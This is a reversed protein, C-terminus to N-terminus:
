RSPAGRRPLLLSAKRSSPPAPDGQHSTGPVGWAGSFPCTDMLVDLDTQLPILLWLGPCRRHLHPSTPANQEGADTRQMQTEEGLLGVVFAAGPCPPGSPGPPTDRQCSTSSDAPLCCSNLFSYILSFAQPPQSSFQTQFLSTVLPRFPLPVELRATREPRCSHASKTVLYLFLRVDSLRLLGGGAARLHTLSGPM